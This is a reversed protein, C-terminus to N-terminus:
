KKIIEIDCAFKGISTYGLIKMISYIADSRSKCNELRNNKKKEVHDDYKSM